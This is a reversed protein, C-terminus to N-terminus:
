ANGHFYGGRGAVLEAHRRRHLADGSIYLNFKPSNALDVRVDFPTALKFSELGNITKTVNVPVAGGFMSVNGLSLSGASTSTGTVALGSPDTAFTVNISGLVTASVGMSGSSALQGLAAETFGLAFLMSTLIVHNSM